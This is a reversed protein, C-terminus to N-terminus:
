NVVFREIFTETIHAVCTPQIHVRDPRWVLESNSFMAIEYSPFYLANSHEECFADAVSRLMAKSRYNAVVIDDDTFTSQLPVPSVTVILRYDGTSHHRSICEGISRLAALNENYGLLRFEFDKKKRALIDGAISNCYMGSPKHYWAECLGLTVVIARSKTFRGVLTRAMMRRNVAKERIVRPLTPGYNLDYVVGGVEVLLSESEDFLMDNVARRFEQEMSPVNYRHFFGTSVKGDVGLFDGQALYDLDMSSIPFGRKRLAHEIERAFCSGM